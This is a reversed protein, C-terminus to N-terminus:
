PVATHLAQTTSGSPHDLTYESPHDDLATLRYAMVLIM